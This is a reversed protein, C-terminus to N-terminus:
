PTENIKSPLAIWMCRLMNERINRDFFIVLSQNIAEAVQFCIIALFDWAMSVETGTLAEYMIVILGPAAGVVYSAVIMLSQILVKKEDITLDRRLKTPANERTVKPYQRGDSGESQQFSRISDRVYLYIKIYPYAVVPFGLCVLGIFVISFYPSDAWAVLCYVRSSHTSYAVGVIGLLFPACVIFASFAFIFAAVVTSTGNKIKVEKLIMLYRFGSVGALIGLAVLFGAFMIAGHIQCALSSKSKAPAFSESTDSAAVTVAFVSNSIDMILCLAREDRRGAPSAVRWVRM